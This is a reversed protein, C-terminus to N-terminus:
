LLTYQGCYIYETHETGVTIKRPRLSTNAGGSGPTELPEVAQEGGLCILMVILVDPGGIIVKPNVGQARPGGSKHDPQCQNNRM